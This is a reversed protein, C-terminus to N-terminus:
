TLLVSPDYHSDLETTVNKSLMVLTRDLEVDKISKVSALAQKKTKGLSVGLRSARLIIDENSVNLFSYSPRKM